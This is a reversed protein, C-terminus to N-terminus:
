VRGFQQNQKAIAIANEFARRVEPFQDPPLQSAVAQAEQLQVMPNQSLVQQRRSMGQSEIPPEPQKQQVLGGLTQGAGAGAAAGGPGGYIGGVVAGGITLLKGLGDDNKVPQRPQIAM